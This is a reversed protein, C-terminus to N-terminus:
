GGPIVGHASLIQRLRKLPTPKNLVAHAGAALWQRQAEESSDGIVAVVPCQKWPVDGSKFMLSMVKMAETGSLFPMHEDSFILDVPTASCKVTQLLALGDDVFEFEFSGTGAEFQLKKLLCTMVTQIAKSDEAWLLRKPRESRRM